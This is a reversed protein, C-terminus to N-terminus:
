NVTSLCKELDSGLFEIDDEDEPVHMVTVDPIIEIVKSMVFDEAARKSGMIKAMSSVAKEIANNLTEVVPLSKLLQVDSM